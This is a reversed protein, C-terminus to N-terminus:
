FCLSNKKAEISMYTEVLEKRNLKYDDTAEPARDRNSTLSQHINPKSKMLMLQSTPPTALNSVTVNGWGTTQRGKRKGSKVLNNKYNKWFTPDLSSFPFLFSM